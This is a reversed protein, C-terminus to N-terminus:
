LEYRVVKITGDTDSYIHATAIQCWKDLAQWLTSITVYYFPVVISQLYAVYTADITAFVYGNALAVAQIDTFLDYANGTSSSKYLYGGYNISQMRMIDDKMSVKAEYQTSEYKWIDSKFTGIINYTGTTKYKLYIKIDKNPKLLNQEALDGLEGNIDKLELSGTQAILGYTPKKNDSIERDTRTVKNLSSNDFTLKLGISIQCIMYPMKPLKWDSMVVTFPATATIGAVTFIADDSYYMKSGIQIVQPYQGRIRDFYITFHDINTATVTLTLEDDAWASSMYGKYENAFVNDTSWYTTDINPVTVGITNLICRYFVEDYLVRNGFIYDDKTVDFDTYSGDEMFTDGRDLRSGNTFVNDTSWYTIDTNPITVSITDEVCKYFVDEFQVRDDVVYNTKTDDFDTYSGDEMFTDGYDLKSGNIESDDSLIFPKDGFFVAGNSIIVGSSINNEAIDPVEANTISGDGTPIIDIEAKYYIM